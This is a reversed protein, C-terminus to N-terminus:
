ANKWSFLLGMDLSKKHFIPGNSHCMGTHGWPNKYHEGACFTLKRLWTECTCCEFHTKVCWCWSTIHDSIIQHAHFFMGLSLTPIGEYTPSEAIIRSKIKRYITETCIMKVHFFNPRIIVIKHKMVNKFRIVLLLGSQDDWIRPIM